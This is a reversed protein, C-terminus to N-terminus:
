KQESGNCYVVRKESEHGERFFLESIELNFFEAIQWCFDITPAVECAELRTIFTRSKGLKESLEILSLENMKRYFRVHNKHIVKAM